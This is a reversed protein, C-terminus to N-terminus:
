VGLRAATAAAAPKYGSFLGKWFGVGLGVHITAYIAPGGWLFRIGHKAALAVSSLFVAGFYVALTGLFAWRGLVTFSSLLATLLMWAVFAPPVFQSLSMADRHKAMLKFRGQGYRTMQKFLGKLDARPAYRITLRPSIYSKMGSQWVRHNLEVDECADFAEDYM